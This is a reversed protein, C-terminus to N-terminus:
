NKDGRVTEVLPNPMQQELLFQNLLSYNRYIEMPIKVIPKKEM